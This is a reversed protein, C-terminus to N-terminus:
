EARLAMAPEVRLARRGPVVCAVLGVTAITSVVLSLILPDRPEVAFLLDRLLGGAVLALVVGVGLGVGVSIAGRGIVSRLVAGRSAGLAVRVGIEATRQSVTYALVGYIGAAALLLAVAAFVTLLYTRFRPTATAQELTGEMTSALVPVDPNRSQITRRITETLTQPNPVAARVVITMTNGPGTHQANPMYIEPQSPFAPGDTRVDAAIGVITMPDPTDLGSQITRGIPDQDPFATRALSENVIAVLPAGRGDADTFERGRRIPIRMANFYGPTAVNLIAVPSATGLQERTPGGQVWYGGTSGVRTPLSTVAGAASVGPLSRIEDLAQLYFAASREFTAPEFSVIPVTTRLVLVREADFGVDVSALAALSRGLLGAGVVLVVALAVEVVVFAHRMRGARGGLASGKGGQRLSEALHRIRSVQLAPALGFVLSSVLSVLMSFVLAIRDVDIEEVRPLDAPAFAMLMRVGGYALLVGAAGGLMGLTLSEILLQRVLRWRGAGVATRVVMERGRSTARSLLLNAVNACAILLVFVVAALLVYMTQRSNGVLQDKLPMLAVLKDNNTVPYQQELRRAIGLLDARAQELTVGHRLRGIVRYNHAARSQAEPFTSASVFIDARAPFRIGPALVGVVPIARSGMKVVAGIAKPDGGFQRQWFADTIVAVPSGGPAAEEASMLRGLRATVGLADFFGATVRFVEAYGASGDVTVGSEGGAYYAFADFTRNQTRYDHFDPASQSPQIRGSSPRFRNVAVIRDPEAFPLPRLLIGNVVSFIATTAGIGLALTLIATLAFGPQRILLRVSHRLDRLLNDM